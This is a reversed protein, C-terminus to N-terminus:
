RRDTQRDETQRETQRDRQRDIKQRDTQKVTHSYAQRFLVLSTMQNAFDRSGNHASSFFLLKNRCEAHMAQCSHSSM